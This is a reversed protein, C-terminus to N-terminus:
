FVRHSLFTREGSTVEVSGLEVIEGGGYRISLAHSGPPLLIRAMWLRHPLGLWARTDARETLINVANALINMIDGGTEGTEEDAKETLEKAAAYKILARLITKAYIGLLRDELAQMQLASVALIPEAQATSGGVLLSLEDFAPEPVGPAPFALPLVYALDKAKYGRGVHRYGGARYEEALTLALDRRQQKGASATLEASSEFLPIYASFEAVPAVFGEEVLLVVEGRPQREESADAGPSALPQPRPRPRAGYRREYELLHDSYGLFRALRVLDEVLGAPLPLGLQRYGKEALRFSVYSNSPDDAELGLGVLYNFFPPNDYIADSHKRSFQLKSNLKRWEVDAEERQDLYYYNLGRYYNVLFNEIGRPQFKLILDSTLLSLAARTISKTYLDDVRREAFEFRSNSLEYDGVYHLLLGDELAFLLDGTGKGAEALRARAGEVDNAALAHRVDRMTTAHGACGACVFCLALLTYAPRM